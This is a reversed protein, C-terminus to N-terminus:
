YNVNHTLTQDRCISRKIIFMNHKRTWARLNKICKTAKPRDEVIVFLFTDPPPVVGVRLHPIKATPTYCQGVIDEVRACKM